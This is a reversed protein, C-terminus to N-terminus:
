PWLPENIRKIIGTRDCNEALTKLKKGSPLILNPEIEYLPILVFSRNELEKHPITLIDEKTTLQGNLLIDLDLIRAGWREEAERNRGYQAEISHLLNLLELPERSSEIAAVANHYNDQNQPGIPASLYCCSCRTLTIDDCDELTKLAAQLLQFSSLTETSLNSGLGIYYHNTKPM